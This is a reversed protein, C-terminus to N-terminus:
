AYDDITDIWLWQWEVIFHGEDRVDIWETPMDVVARGIKLGRKMWEKMREKTRECWIFQHTAQCAFRFIELNDVLGHTRQRATVRSEIAEALSDGEALSPDPSSDTILTLYRLSPLLTTRAPMVILAQFVEASLRVDSPMCLTLKQLWPITRFLELVDEDIEQTQLFLYLEVLACESRRLFSTITPLVTDPRYGLAEDSAFGIRLRELAPACLLNLIEGPYDHLYARISFSGEECGDIYGYQCFLSLHRLRALRIPKKVHYGPWPIEGPGRRQVRVSPGTGKRTYRITAACAPPGDSTYRLLSANLLSPLSILAALCNRPDDYQCRFEEIQALPLALRPWQADLIHLAKKWLKLCRLKPAHAFLRCKAFARWHKPGNNHASNFHNYPDEFDFSLTELRRLWGQMPKLTDLSAAVDLRSFRHDGTDCINLESCRPAYSALLSDSLECEPDSGSDGPVVAPRVASHDMTLVFNGGTCLEMYHRLCERAMLSNVPPADFKEPCWVIYDTISMILTTFYSSLCSTCVGRWQHCVRLLVCPGHDVRQMFWQLRDSESATRFRDQLLYFDFAISLVEVPLEHIPSLTIGIRSAGIRSILSRRAASPDAGPQHAETAQVLQRSPDGGSLNQQADGARYPPPLSGM